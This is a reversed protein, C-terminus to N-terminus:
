THVKKAIDWLHQLDRSITMRTIDCDLVIEPNTVHVDRALLINLVLMNDAAEAETQNLGITADVAQSIGISKGQHTTDLRGKGGGDKKAEVRMAKNGEQNSQTATFCPINYIKVLEKIDWFVKEQDAREGEKQSVSPKVINAYDIVFCDPIFGELERWKEVWDSLNKITTTKPICEVIKLRSKWSKVWNMRDDFIAKESESIAASKLRNYNINNFLADYRNETLDISNEFVFHVVNYGQLIAAFGCSNLTISKYRKAPALFNVIMPGMVELQSDLLEIGTKIVPKADVNDRYYLREEMRRQFGDAYDYTKLGGGDIITRATAVTEGMEKLFYDIRNSRNYSDFSNKTGAKMISFSVFEKFIKDADKQFSIERSYLSYLQNRYLELKDPSDKLQRCIEADLYEWEIASWSRSKLLSILWKYADTVFFGEDLKSLVFHDKYLGRVICALIEAEINPHLSDIPM